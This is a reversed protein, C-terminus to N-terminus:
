STLFAVEIRSPTATGAQEVNPRNSVPQIQLKIRGNAPLASGYVSQIANTLDVVFSPNVAAGGHGGHSGHFFVGFSGVYHKDTVPTTPSLGDYDLFIRFETTQPNTVAVNRIFALARTGSARVERAAAFNLFETGSGVPKRRVVSQLLAPDVDIPVDLPKAATASAQVAATYTRVGASNAAPTARLTTLRAQLAVLKPSQASAVPAALGYTYGLSEPVFLDSVQPSFFSGDTNYFNNTFVMNNWLPDPSNSNGLSNWLAWIRDINSHHMFFIPDRPSAASPMWGGINNHTNNHANGELVGQAGSGDLVWSPDLSNQGNPRSTGFDEYDTSNLISQLVAPGVQSVPMPQQPPWTRTWTMGFGQDNVYLANPKGDPTTPHLFVDPMTPHSTWDWYPMAFANNSTLNRIIREYTVVFARHWPLFYWNGHPCYHYTDPDSGHISSLNVWSFIDSDAKQKMIGVADRYTAIIPDNWALGELSQREPPQGQALAEIGSVNSAIVGAGVVAGQLLVNRRSIDM